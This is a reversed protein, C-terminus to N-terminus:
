SKRGYNSQESSCSKYVSTLRRQSLPVSMVKVNIIIVEFYESDEQKVRHSHGCRKGCAGCVILTNGYKSLPIRLFLRLLWILDTGLLSKTNDEM